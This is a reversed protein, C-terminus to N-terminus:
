TTLLTLGLHVSDNKSAGKKDQHAVLQRAWTVFAEASLVNKAINCVRCATVSNEVTYGKDNELRDVGNHRLTDKYKQTTETRGVIGCYHCAGMILEVFQEKTLKWELERSVANRRYYNWVSTKVSHGLGKRTRKSLLEKQLCGCSRTAKKNAPTLNAYQICKMVGCDCRCVYYTTKTNKDRVREIVILRGLKQGVLSKESAKIRCENSCTPKKVSALQSPWDEFGKSCVACVYQTKM